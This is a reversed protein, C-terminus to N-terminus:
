NLSRQLNILRSPESVSTGSLEEAAINGCIAWQPIEFNKAPKQRWRCSCLYSVAETQEKFIRDYTCIAAAVLRSGRTTSSHAQPYARFSGPIQSFTDHALPDFYTNGGADSAPLPFEYGGFDCIRTQRCCPVVRIPGDLNM